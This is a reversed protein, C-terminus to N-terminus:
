ATVPESLLNLLSLQHPISPKPVGVELPGKMLQHRLSETLVYSLRSPVANGIQCYQSSTQGLFIYDDPFTQLRASERVTLRRVGPVIGEYPTGGSMLYRHYEVFVGTSDIIHTRNGGASAPITQSPEALNIPRGGGNVLMGDWPQPRLVPKKAYTVKARNPTDAPSDELAEGSTIYPSTGLPGYLPTPFTFEFDRIGVIFLRRRHQPVGYDAADLVSYTVNYGLSALKEITLELYDRHKQSALGPVNEMLFANPSCEAVARIFEPVCDRPDTFSLQRGAVSFPQCPPGGAVLDVDGRWKTFDVSKIDSEILHVDPFNAKYTLCASANHDVGLITDWGANELGLTLGGAGCFLDVSRM